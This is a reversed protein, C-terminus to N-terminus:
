NRPHVSAQTVHGARTAARPINIATTLRMCAPQVLKRKKLTIHQGGRDVFEVYSVGDTVYISLRRRTNRPLV